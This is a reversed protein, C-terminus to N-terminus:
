VADLAEAEGGLEEMERRLAEAKAKLETVEHTIQEKQREVIQEFVEPTKVVLEHLEWDPSEKLANTAELVTIVEAELSEWLRHLQNLEDSDSFDVAAWGQRLVFGVPDEAIRRLTALDGNDKATNIAATLKTYTDLKEADDAFRDPHFLKVLKKWLSKLEGEEDPSLQHKSEMAAETEAYEQRSRAEAERYEEDVQRAEDEGAQMLKDLFSQRYSVVLRVRDREEYHTRLAKFLRVQLASVAAKMSTYSAELDALRARSSTVLNQFRALDPHTYIVIGAAATDEPMHREDPEAVSSVSIIDQARPTARRLERLYWRGMSSSRENSSNALWELWVRLEHNTHADHFSQGRFKGFTLRSPYWEEAAYRVLADWSDLRRAEAIPRLVNSFLESLTHVASLATGAGRERLGYYEGLTKLKCNASPLPDLLRQSLRLACFAGDGIFPIEWRHLDNNIAKMVDHDLNYAVMPLMGAYEAFATYVMLAPEGDRELIELPYGHLSSIEPKRHEQHNLLRRFPGGVPEWGHMKQAAIEVVFVPAAIGTTETKVLLWDTHQM